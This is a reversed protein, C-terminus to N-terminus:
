DLLSTIFSALNLDLKTVGKAEHTQLTITVKHYSNSWDPHHNIREAEAAIRSMFQWAQQFDPWEFVACIMTVQCNGMIRWGPPLHAKIEDKSLSKKHTM